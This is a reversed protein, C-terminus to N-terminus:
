LVTKKAAGLYIFLYIEDDAAAAAVAWFREVPLACVIPRSSRAGGSSGPGMQM